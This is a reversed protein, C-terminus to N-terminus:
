NAAEAIAAPLQGCYERFVEQIAQYTASTLFGDMSSAYLGTEM